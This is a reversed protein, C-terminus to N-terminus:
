DESRCLSAECADWQPWSLTGPQREKRESGKVGELSSNRCDEAPTGAAMKLALQTAVGQRQKSDCDNKRSM